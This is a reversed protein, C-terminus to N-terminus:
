YINARRILMWRGSQAAQETDQVISVLRQPRPCLLHSDRAFSAPLGFSVLCHFAKEYVPAKLGSGPPTYLDELELRSPVRCGPGIGPGAQAHM